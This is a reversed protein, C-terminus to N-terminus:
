RYRRPRINCALQRSDTAYVIRRGAEDVMVTAVSPRYVKPKSRTELHAKVAARAIRDQSYDASESRWRTFSHRQNNPWDGPEYELGAFEDPDYGFDIHPKRLDRGNHEHYSPRRGSKRAHVGQAGSLILGKRTRKTPQKTTILNM